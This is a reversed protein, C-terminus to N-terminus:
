DNSVSSIQDVLAATFQMADSEGAEKWGIDDVWLNEHLFDADALLTVRGKGIQCHALFNVDSLECNVDKISKGALSEFSGLGVTALKFNEFELLVVEGGEDQTVLELGWHKLLPSLLGSSLPRRTDGLPLESPWVLNPDSFIIASGGDRVWADLEALDAPDMARPQVLMVIDTGSGQLGELSDVATMAFREQWYTFIPAPSTDGSLIDRMSGSEGWIIPLSTMLKINIQKTASTEQNGSSAPSCQALM